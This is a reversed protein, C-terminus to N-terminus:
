EARLAQIPDVRTARRAPAWCAGAAAAALLAVVAAISLPDRANVEYLLKSLVKGAGLAGAVGLLLGGGVPLMGQALVMRRVRGPGAGLAIRVGIENVRRAVSYAVVGYIGLVALLLATGGFIASLLTEFRRQAVSESLVDQMSMMAPIPVDPDVSRVAERMAGAVSRADASARAALLVNRPAWEWYPRYVIGAPEKDPDSRVDGAVGIVEYAQGPYREFRRGIADQDPWLLRAVKRSIVAVQRSRDNEAFSRGAELPIGMTGFYDGSVFRVNVAPQEYSPRQDGPVYAKDVWTEGTLPLATSIAASTVGPQTRLKELVLEHFRNRQEDKQYKLWPISIQATLVTPASFGKDARLVRLFSTGLLASIVLLTTSLGVEASVLMSRFRVGTRGSTVTRGGAKLTEYPDIRASHWAPAIGFLVGTCTTLAFAFLLVQLDIHVENLRPIDGPAFHLLTDLGAVALWIGAIGGLLSIVLAEVLVQRILRARGAGLATRVAWERGRREARALMLNALNVCVILLVSGVAGLLVLLGTRSKGVLSERLPIVSAKLNVTEGAMKELQVAIVNLEALASERSSGPKLRAIVSHNFTGMLESLEDKSFAIPKYIEPERLLSVGGTDLIAMPPMRFSPPLVGVVTHPVSDLLVTAGVVSPSAQFRRRWLGDTIVAIRDHGESDEGAAFGRGLRPYVGLTDFIDASVKAQNLRDPEGSGTLNVTGQSVVSLSEFSTCRARWETFHRASVPLTPYTASIGPIVERLAVLRDPERYPLPQLLVGNVVTFIATNMGIGLALMSISLAAFGPERVLARLAQRVDGWLAM